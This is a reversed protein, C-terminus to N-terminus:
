PVCFSSRVIISRYRPSAPTRLTAMRAAVLLAKAAVSTRTTTESYLLWVPAIKSPMALSKSAALGSISMLISTTFQSLRSCFSVVSMAPPVAGSMEIM